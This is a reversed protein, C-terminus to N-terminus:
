WADDAPTVPASALRLIPKKASSWSWSRFAGTLTKARSAAPLSAVAATSTLTNSFTNRLLRMSTSSANRALTTGGIRALVGDSFTLSGDLRSSDYRVMLRSSRLCFPAVM